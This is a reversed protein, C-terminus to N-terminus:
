KYIYILNPDQWGQQLPLCQRFLSLLSLYYWHQDSGLEMHIILQLGKSYSNELVIMDLLAMPRQQLSNIKKKYIDREKWDAWSHSPRNHRWNKFRVELPSWFLKHTFPNLCLCAWIMWVLDTQIKGSALIGKFWTLLWMRWGHVQSSEWLSLAQPIEWPGHPKTLYSSTGKKSASCTFTFRWPALACVSGTPLVKM